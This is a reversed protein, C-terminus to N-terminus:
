GNNKTEEDLIKELTSLRAQWIQTQSQMWETADFLPAPNVSLIHERGKLKRTVLGARELVKIHKSVSNLSINFPKAIDTVRAPHRTLQSLIERRVPDALAFLTNDLTVTM